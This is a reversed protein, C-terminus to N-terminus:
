GSVERLYASLDSPNTVPHECQFNKCVYATAMGNVSKYAELMPVVHLISSPGDVSDAQSRFLVVKDPLYFQQITRLMEKTDTADQKGVIVIELSSDLAYNLASLMHTFGNPISRFARAFFQMGEWAMQELDPNGTLRSLKLLNTMMMSNGSPIAGDYADRPRVPLEEADSATLFFAAQEKDWFQEICIKNLNIALQLRAPDFTTEYLELLGWIFFAYDDLMGEINAENERWRHLLRGNKQLLVKKVFTCARNAARTYVPEDFVRGARALAGIMLGNWDTLIKDDLGPRVRSARHTFLMARVEEWQQLGSLEEEERGTLPRLHLINEGTRENSLEPFFNGQQEVQYVQAVRDALDEGLIDVLEQEYWLYFKGEHGESDADEACYFAGSVDTLDRLVYIFIEEATRKHVVKRTAQYMETYALALMAQDYLMKEFHPLKWERDTSYRHFGYGVHDFIGGRRMSQLTKEVMSLAKQTGTRKWYRLLFLLSHPTPFKPATGFGGHVTDFTTHLRAYARDLDEVKLDSGRMNIESSQKLAKRINEADKQITERAQLWVYRVRVTLELMGWRGHRSEKPIYTDAFFPEKDPTMLITLPWGGNGKIMQCVSMYVADIDPREERDVKINIFADNMRSAVQPDEFSEREMVHCWHCTSYGISLFIPKDQAKAAQFAEEAWPWWDVPNNQHQLLYPSKEHQLRNRM